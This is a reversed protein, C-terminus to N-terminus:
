SEDLGFVQFVAEATVVFLFDCRRAWVLDWVCVKEGHLSFLHDLVGVCM